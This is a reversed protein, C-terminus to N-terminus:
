CGLIALCVNNRSSFCSTKGGSGLGRRCCCVVVVEELLGGDFSM